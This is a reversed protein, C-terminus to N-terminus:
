IMKSGRPGVGIFIGIWGKGIWGWDRRSREDTVRNTLLRRKEESYGASSTTFVDVIILM